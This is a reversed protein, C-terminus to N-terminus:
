WRVPHKAPAFRSFYAQFQADTWHSATRLASIDARNVLKGDASLILVTPTGALSRVGFQRALAINRKRDRGSEVLLMEFPRKLSSEVSPRALWQRLARTDPCTETGLIVLINSQFWGAEKQAQELAARAQAGDLYPLLRPLSEIPAAELATPHASPQALATDSAGFGIVAVWMWAAFRIIRSM